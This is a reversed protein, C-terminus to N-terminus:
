TGSADGALPPSLDLQAVDPNFQNLNALNALYGVLDEQRPRGFALRYVALAKKM